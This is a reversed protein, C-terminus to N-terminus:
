KIASDLAAGTKETVDETDSICREAEDIRTTNSLVDRKVETVKSELAAMSNAMDTLRTNINDSRAGFDARPLKLENLVDAVDVMNRTNAEGGM